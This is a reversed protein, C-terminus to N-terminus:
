KERCANASRATPELKTRRKTQGMAVLLPCRRCFGDSVSEVAFVVHLANGEIFLGIFNDSM